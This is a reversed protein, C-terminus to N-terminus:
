AAIPRKALRVTSVVDPHRVRDVVVATSAIATHNLGETARVDADPKVKWALPQNSLEREDARRSPHRRSRGGLVAVFRGQWRTAMGDGHHQLVLILVPIHPRSELPVRAQDTESGM